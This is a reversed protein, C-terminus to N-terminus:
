TSRYYARVAERRGSVGLKAYLNITHRKVTLASIGLEQAIEKNTHRAALSGLMERERASLAEAGEAPEVGPLLPARDVIVSTGPVMEARSADLLVARMGSRGDRQVLRELLASLHPGQDLFPRVHGRAADITEALLRLAEGTSGSLDLLVAQLARVAIWRRHIHQTDLRRGLVDLIAAAERLHTPSRMPESLLIRARILAPTIASVLTDHEPDPTTTEAWQVAAAVDGRLLAMDAQLARVMPISFMWNLSHLTDLLRAITDDALRDDGLLVATRALEYLAERKFLIGTLPEGTAQRLYRAALDLENRQLCISGSLIQAQATMRPFDASIATALIWRGHAESEDLDGHWLRALGAFLRAWM